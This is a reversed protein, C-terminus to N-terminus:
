IAEGNADGREAIEILEDASVLADEIPPPASTTTVVATQETWPEIAGLRLLRPVDATDGVVFTILTPNDADLYRKAGRTSRPRESTEPVRGQIRLKHAIQKYVGAQEATVTPTTM